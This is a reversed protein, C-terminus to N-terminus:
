CNVFIIASKAIFDSQNKIHRTITGDEFMSALANEMLSDGQTDIFKQLATATSIFAEPAVM